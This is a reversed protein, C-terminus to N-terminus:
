LLPLPAQEGYTIKIVADFMDLAKQDDIEWLLDTDVWREEREVCQNYQKQFLRLRTAMSHSAELLKRQVEPKLM